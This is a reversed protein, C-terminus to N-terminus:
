DPLNAYKKYNAIIEKMLESNAAIEDYKANYDIAGDKGLDYIVKRLYHRIAMDEVPSLPPCKKM